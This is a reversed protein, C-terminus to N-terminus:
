LKIKEYVSANTKGQEIGETSETVFVIKATKVLIKFDLLISYQQIYMLDMKLKDYPTTNYKGMVQAYGTLGAKVALRFSFEPMEKEYEEAIEPREPRPGVLSMDGKLINLLQPLEDLRYRRLVKGASTIRNDGAESLRATGDNEANVVMSRFKYMEFKRGNKTLRTQRYIINGGDGAKIIIACVLMVPSLIVLMIGSCVLDAARKIIRHELKLGFTKCILLPTDFTHINEAGRLIVDTIKPV